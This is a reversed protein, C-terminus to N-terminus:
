EAARVISLTRTSRFDGLFRAADAGSLRYSLGWRLRVICWPPGDLGTAPGFEVAGVDELNFGVEAATASPHEPIQDDATRYSAWSM